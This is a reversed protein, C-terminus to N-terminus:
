RADFQALRMSTAFVAMVQRSSRCLTKSPLAINCLQLRVSKAYLYSICIIMNNNYIYIYTHLHIYCIIERFTAVGKVALTM